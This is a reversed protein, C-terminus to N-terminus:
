RPWIRWKRFPCLQCILKPHYFVSKVMFSVPLELLLEPDLLMGLSCVQLKLFLIVEDWVPLVDDGPGLFPGLLTFPVEVKDPNLKMINM